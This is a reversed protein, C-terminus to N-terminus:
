RLVNAHYLQILPAVLLLAVVTLPLSLPWPLRRVLV